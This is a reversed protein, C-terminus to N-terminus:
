TENNVFFSLHRVMITLPAAFVTTSVVACIIGLVKIRSESTDGLILQIILVIVGFIVLNLSFVLTATFIQLLTFPNFPTLNM